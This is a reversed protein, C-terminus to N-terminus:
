CLQNKQGIPAAFNQRQSSQRFPRLPTKANVHLAPQTNLINLQNWRGLEMNVALRLAEITERLLERQIEPDQINAIFRDRILTDEQNGLDCNDFFEKLKGFFLEISEGKQTSPSSFCTGTLLLIARDSFADEIIKWLEVTRLTDM